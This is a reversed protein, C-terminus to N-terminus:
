HHDKFGLFGTGCVSTPSKHSTKHGITTPHDRGEAVKMAWDQVLLRSAVGDFIARLLM